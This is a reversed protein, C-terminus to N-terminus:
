GEPADLILKRLMEMIAVVARPDSLKKGLEDSEVDAEEGSVGSRGEVAEIWESLAILFQYHRPHGEGYKLGPFRDSLAESFQAWEHQLTSRIQIEVLKENVRVIVHVARYGHSPNARRDVVSVHQFEGAIRSTVRDQEALDEVVIRVGAIDQIQSLRISERRLKAVISRDTKAARGSPEIKVVRGITQIVEEYADAFENRYDNLLKLDEDTVQQKLREGLRDIQSKSLLSSSALV